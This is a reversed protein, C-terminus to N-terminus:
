VHGKVWISQPVFAKSFVNPIEYHFKCGSPAMAIQRYMLWEQIKVLRSCISCSVSFWCWFLKHCIQPSQPFCEVGGPPWHRKHRGNQDLTRPPVLTSMFTSSNRRSLRRLPLWFGDITTIPASDFNIHISWGNGNASKIRISQVENGRGHVNLIETKCFLPFWTSRKKECFLLLFLLLLLLCSAFSPKWIWNNFIESVITPM